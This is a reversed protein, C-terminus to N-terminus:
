LQAAHKFGKISFEQHLVKNDVLVAACNLQRATKINEYGLGGTIVMKQDAFHLTDLLSFDFNSKDGEHLTDYVIIENAFEDILQYNLQDCTLFEGSDCSFVLPKTGEVTIPLLCQIAQRGFLQVATALLQRNQSVFASSFILREVPVDALLHLYDLGRIGGGFSLPTMTNISGLVEIDRKFALLSDTERVPRIIAIEDCQYEELMDIVHQLSGLPRLKSWNYSQYCLGDLLLVSAGVRM